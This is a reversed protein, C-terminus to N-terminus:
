TSAKRQAAVNLVIIGLAAGAIVDALRHKRGFIRAISVAAALGVALPGAIGLSNRHLSVAAAFCEAAHQSPFSNGNEGNPRPEHWLAKIAKSTASTALIATLSDCGAEFNGTRLPALLAGGVLM